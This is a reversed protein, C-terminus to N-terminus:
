LVRSFIESLKTDKFNKAFGNANFLNLRIKAYKKPYLVYFDKTVSEYEAIMNPLIKDSTILIPPEEYFSKTKIGSERDEAWKNFRLYAKNGEYNDTGMYFYLYKYAAHKGFTLQDFYRDVLWYFIDTKNFREDLHEIPYDSHHIFCTKSM